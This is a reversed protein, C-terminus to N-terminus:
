LPTPKLSIKLILVNREEEWELLKLTIVFKVFYKWITSNSLQLQRTIVFTVFYKKRIVRIDYSM